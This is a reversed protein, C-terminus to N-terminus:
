IYGSSQPDTTRGTGLMDLYYGSSPLDLPLGM